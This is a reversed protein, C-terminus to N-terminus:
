IWSTWLNYWRFCRAITKLFLNNSFLIHNTQTERRPTVLRVKSTNIYPALRELANRYQHVPMCLIIADADPIVDKPDCSKKCTGTFTKTVKNKMTTLDCTVVSDWDHPRRTLLNVSHGATSLFPILVHASNGGGVICVILKPLQSNGNKDM